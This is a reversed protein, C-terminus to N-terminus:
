GEYMESLFLTCVRCFNLRCPARSRAVAKPIMKCSRAGALEDVAIGIVVSHTSLV